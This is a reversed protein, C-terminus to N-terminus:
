ATRFWRITDDLAADFAETAQWDLAGRAAQVDGCSLRIDGRREPHHEIPVRGVIACVRAALANVTLMHGTGVNYVGPQGRLGALNARAVDRVSVFDRGQEGDGFVVLPQGSLAREVFKPIVAGYPGFPDQRPGFVNFYRLGVCGLGLATFAAAFAENDLKSAAYPSEPSLPDSERKPLGPLSGYVACSTAYVLRQVGAELAARAVMVFGGGNVQHYGVPDACSEPVSTRAALHIVHTVGSMARTVTAADVISGVILEASRGQLNERRGTSLDDLVRVRAGSAELAAVTHSGIFGAGGTVLIVHAGGM